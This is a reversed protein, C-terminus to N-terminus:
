YEIRFAMAGPNDFIDTFSNKLTITQGDPGVKVGAGVAKKVKRPLRITTSMSAEGMMSKAEGMQQFRESNMLERHKASDLKKELLGNRSTFQFFSSFDPSGGMAAAENSGLAKGMIGGDQQTLAMISELDAMKKFPFQMNMVFQREKPNMQMRMVGNRLLGKQDATLNSATDTFSSFNITTDMGKEMDGFPSKQGAGSSDEGSMAQMAEMLEFMGGMDMKVAYTGSGDAKVTFEEAIDFCGTATVVIVLLLLLLKKM